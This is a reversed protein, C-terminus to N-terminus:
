SARRATFASAHAQAFAALPTAPRGTVRLVADTTSAQDGRRLSDYVRVVEHAVPDPLGAATLGAVADQPTVDVYAIAQGSAATLASAVEHHSVAEPGTLELVESEFPFDQLARAAVAAVDGPDIMAIRAQGAPAMLAGLERITGSAALLNTMLFSPRLVVSPIRAARLHAEIEAHARWYANSASAHAGRASVKVLRVVHAGAAADILTREHQVQDPHNASVLFVRDVGDLAARVSAPDTLDGQVLDARDGVLTSARWPDRVLARLHLGDAALLDLLRSGITGTAGTILITM